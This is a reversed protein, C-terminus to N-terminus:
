LMPEPQASGLGLRLGLDLSLKLHEQLRIGRLWAWARAKLGLWAKCM